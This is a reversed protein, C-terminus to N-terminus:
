TPSCPIESFGTMSSETDSASLLRARASPTGRSRIRPEIDFPDCNSYLQRGTGPGVTQFTIPPAANPQENLLNSLNGGREFPVGDFEYRAGIELTLNSRVKWSDQLFVGYEHQVFDRYDSPTRTGGANFFQTQSQIGPVGLLAAALTQITEDTACAGSCNVVPIGFNGFATFDVLPRTGFDDYGNDYVYRFEAGVKIAHRGKIWSLNDATHWTRCRPKVTRSTSLNFSYDTGSGFPDLPGTSGPRSSGSCPTWDTSVSVSNM